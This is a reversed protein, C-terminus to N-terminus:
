GPLSHFGPWPVSPVHREETDVVQAEDEKTGADALRTSGYKSSSRASTQASRDTANRITALRVTARTISLLVAQTTSTSVALRVTRPQWHHTYYLRPALVEYM